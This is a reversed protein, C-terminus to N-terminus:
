FSTPKSQFISHLRKSIDSISSLTMIQIRDTPHQLQSTPPPTPRNLIYISPRTFLTLNQCPHFISGSHRQYTTMYHPLLTNLHQSVMQTHINIDTSLIHSDKSPSAKLSYGAPIAATSAPFRTHKM